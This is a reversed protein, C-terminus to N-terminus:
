KKLIFQEYQNMHVICHAFEHTMKANSKHLSMPKVYKEIEYRLFNSKLIVYEKSFCYYYMVCCYKVHKKEREKWKQIKWFEKEIM